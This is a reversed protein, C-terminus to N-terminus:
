DGAAGPGIGPLGLAGIRRKLRKLVEGALDGFAAEDVFHSSSHHAVVREKGELAVAFSPSPVVQLPVVACGDRREGDVVIDDIEVQHGTRSGSIGDRGGPIRGDRVVRQLVGGDGAGGAGLGLDSEIALGSRLDDAEEARDGHIVFPHVEGEGDFIGGFEGGEGEALHKEILSDADGSLCRGLM